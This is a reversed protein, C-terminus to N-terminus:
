QGDKEGTVEVLIVFVVEELPRSSPIAMLFMNMDCNVMCVILYEHNMM